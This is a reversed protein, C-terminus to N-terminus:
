LLSFGASNDAPKINIVEGLVKETKERHGQLADMAEVCNKVAYFALVLIVAMVIIVIATRMLKHYMSDFDRYVMYKKKM